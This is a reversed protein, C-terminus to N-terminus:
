QSAPGRDRPTEAQPVHRSTFLILSASALLDDFFLVRFNAFRSKWIKLRKAYLSRAVYDEFIPDDLTEAGSVRDRKFDHLYHSFLRDVPHRLCVIIHTEVGLYREIHKIAHQHHFYDTSGEGIWAQNSAGLFLRATQGAYSKDTVRRTNFFFHSSPACDFVDPHESLAKM